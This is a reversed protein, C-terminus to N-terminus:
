ILKFYIKEFTEVRVAIVLIICIVTCRCAIEYKLIEEFTLVILISPNPKFPTHIIVNMCVSVIVIGRM